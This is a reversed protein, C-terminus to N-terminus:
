DIHAEAECGQFSDDFSFDWLLRQGDYAEQRGAIKRQLFRTKATLIELSHNKGPTALSMLSTYIEIIETTGAKTPMSARAKSGLSPCRQVRHPIYKIVMTPFTAPGLLNITECWTQTM